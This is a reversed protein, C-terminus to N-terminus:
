AASRDFIDSNTTKTTKIEQQQPMIWVNSKFELAVAIGREVGREIRRGM